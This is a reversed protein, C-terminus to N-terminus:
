NDSNEEEGDEEIEELPEIESFDVYESVKDLKVDIKTIEGTKEDKKIQIDEIKCDSIPEEKGEKVYDVFEGRRLWEPVKFGPTTNEEPYKDGTLDMHLQREDETMPAHKVIEGNYWYETEGMEVNFKKEAAVVRSARGSKICKLVDRLDNFKETIEGNIKDLAAKKEEQIKKKKLELEAYEQNLDGAKNAYEILEKDNLPAEVTINVLPNKEKTKKLEEETIEGKIGDNVKKKNEKKEETM